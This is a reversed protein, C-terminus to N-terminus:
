PEIIIHPDLLTVDPDFEDGHDDKRKQVIFKLELGAKPLFGSAQPNMAGSHVRHLKDRGKVSKWPLPRFFLGTPSGPVDVWFPHSSSWVIDDQDTVSLYLGPHPQNEADPGAISSGDPYTCEVFKQKGNDRVGITLQHTVRDSIKKSAM